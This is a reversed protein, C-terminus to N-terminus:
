KTYPVFQSGKLVAILSTDKNGEQHDNPGPAVYGILGEFKVKDLADRVALRDTSNAAKVALTFMTVADMPSVHFVNLSKAAQYKEQFIKVAPDYVKQRYPDSAPLSDAISIRLVMIMWKMEEMINGALKMVDPMGLGGAGLVPVAMGLQKFNKAVVAGAPGTTYVILLDPNAAKIKTLQPIVSTDKADMRETIIVKSAPYQKLEDVMFKNGQMGYLETDHLIAIKKAGLTTCALEMTHTGMRKDGPGVPYVFKRFPIEVPSTVLYPVKEQEAIPAIAAACDSLTTGILVNIKKDRVLKTAALVATTPNSQDDEIFVEVQKGLLGGRKNIYDVMALMADRQPSGLMGAWGTISCIHGIKITDAAVAPSVGSAFIFSSIAFILLFARAAIGTRKM